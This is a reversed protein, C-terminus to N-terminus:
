RNIVPNTPFAMGAYRKEVAPVRMGLPKDPMRFAKVGMNVRTTPARRKLLLSVFFPKRPTPAPITPATKRRPGDISPCAPMSIWRLPASMARVADRNYPYLMLRMLVLNACMGGM